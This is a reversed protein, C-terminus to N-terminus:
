KCANDNPTSACLTAMSAKADVGQGKYSCCGSDKYCASQAKCGGAALVAAITCKTSKDKDCGCGQLAMVIVFLLGVLAARALGAM